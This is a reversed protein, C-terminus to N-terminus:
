PLFFARRGEGSVGRKRFHSSAQAGRLGPNKGQRTYLRASALQFFSSSRNFREVFEGRIRKM